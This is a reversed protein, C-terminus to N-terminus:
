KLRYLDNFYQLLPVKSKLLVGILLMLSLWGFFIMADFVFPSQM